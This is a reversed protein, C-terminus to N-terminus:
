TISYKATCIGYITARIVRILTGLLGSIDSLDYLTECNIFIQYRTTIYLEFLFFNQDYM